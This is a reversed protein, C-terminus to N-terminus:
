TDSSCLLYRVREGPEGAQSRRVYRDGEFRCSPLADDSVGEPRARASGPLTGCFEQLRGDRCAMGLVSFATQLSPAM